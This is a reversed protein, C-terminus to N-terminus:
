YGRGISLEHRKLTENEIPHILNSSDNVFFKLWHRRLWYDIRDALLVAAALPRTLQTLYHAIEREVDRTRPKIV